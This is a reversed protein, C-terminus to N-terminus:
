RNVKIDSLLETAKTHKAQESEPTYRVGQMANFITNADRSMADSTDHSAQGRSSASASASNSVFHRYAVLIRTNLYCVLPMRFSYYVRGMIPKM